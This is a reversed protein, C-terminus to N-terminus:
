ARAAQALAKGRGASPRDAPHAARAGIALRNWSNIMGIAISLDAVEKPSFQAKTQEYVEDGARSKRIRTLAEAWALAARERESYLGSEHWADLLYLRVESEGLERAKQTHLHLCYACGNIQSVRTYVLALLKPELGSAEIYAEVAALAAYGQPAVQPNIRQTM